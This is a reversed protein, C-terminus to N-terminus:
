GAQQKNDCLAGRQSIFHMLRLVPPSGYYSYIRGVVVPASAHAPRRADPCAGTMPASDLALRAVMAGVPSVVFGPERRRM